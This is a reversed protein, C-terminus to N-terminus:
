SKKRLKQLWELGRRMWRPVQPADMSPPTGEPGYFAEMMHLVNKLVLGRAPVAAMLGYAAATGSEARQPDRRVDEVCEEVDKLYQDCVPAHTPNLMLHIAPPYQQRDVRWGRKKELLLRCVLNVDPDVSTYALLTGVPKGLVRLGRIRMIGEQYRRSLDMLEQAVRRYGEQGMAQLTAWAAAIPGGPRTGAITASAYVGGPWDVYAYFQHRLYSIDRYLIVSAGKAAYGYKHLDASISTVGPVRFDFCPVPYGLAEVWPLLFGGVCADVHLGLNYEQAVRGLETVDDVTGFPYNPASAVLAITNPTILRRVAQVDVTYDERLPASVIKIDFYSGAKHFAVHASTPAIIEPHQIWPSVARARDRYTKLALLISETGGSTMTGCTQPTGHFLWASMQVVEHEFRKLSPFALPNLGNGEFFLGHAKKLFETHADSRHFVLSFIRGEHWAADQKRLSEMEALIEEYERGQPPIEQM